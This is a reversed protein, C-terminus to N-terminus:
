EVTVSKALNRPKDPDYGREIACYYAFLQAPIISLLPAFLDDTRPIYLVYDAVGDEVSSDGYAICVVVAGRAKVARINSHLKEAVAGQTSLAVVPVGDEILAITGHKLEGSAMAESHIYSIEKLKLSAEMAAAYDLGRGIFFIDRSHCFRKALEQEATTSTLVTQAKDSLTQLERIYRDYTAADLRGKASAMEIAVLYLCLLQTLYAKTSAVAIEPGAWTYLVRDAERAITSGVVNTIALVKCGNEKALRLAALTDATEGSQSVVVLLDDPSLIPDRYRFESAVDWEVPVRALQEIAARGVLSAHSATGCAILVVRKVQALYEDTLGAEELHIRGDRLRPNLTDRIARPQEFIEKLMFHKYGGREAADVSWTVEYVKKEVPEGWESYVEVHDAYVLAIEGEDLLYVKRTYPLLAPIDSAIYNGHDSLGVVLPSGKRAAALTGPCAKAVVGLAYAGRLRGMTSTLAELLDGCKELRRALLQSVVESDTQSRFVCGEKELERRLSQYNEIIGNHVVAVRGQDDLHPHANVDSPAGHTAWRTHGIGLNGKPEGDRALRDRLVQLKGRTKVLHLGDGDLTVIGASDYGRYELRSLEDMLIPAAGEPGIYGVIGCM